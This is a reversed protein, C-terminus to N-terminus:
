DKQTPQMGNISSLGTTHDFLACYTSSASVQDLPITLCHPVAINSSVNQVLAVHCMLQLPSIIIPCPEPEDYFIKGSAWPYMRYYDHHM